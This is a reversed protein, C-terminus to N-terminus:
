FLFIAEWSALLAAPFRNHQFKIKGMFLLFAKYFLAKLYFILVVTEISITDFYYDKNPRFSLIRVQSM